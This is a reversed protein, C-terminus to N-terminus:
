RRALPTLTVPGILGSDLPTWRAATFLGDPGRNEPLRAPFNVNYFKKWSVGARDLSAVRNAMLNTVSIELVNKASFHRSDIVLAFTPGILTGLDRGNLRVRATEHVRGLDLRWASADGEPRRFDTRYLATGSFSRLEDGGLGTWSALGGGVLRQPPLVPGGETFGLMWPGVIDVPAGAPEWVHYEEGIKTRGTQVIVTDGAALSVYVDLGDDPSQRVRADGRSGTM